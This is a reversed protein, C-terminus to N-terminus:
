AVPYKRKRNTRLRDSRLLNQIRSIRQSVDEDISCDKDDEDEEDSFMMKTKEKSIEDTSNPPQTRSTENGELNFRVRKVKHSINQVTGGSIDTLDKKTSETGSTQFKEGTETSDGEDLDQCTSPPESERQAMASELGISSEDTKLLNTSDNSIERSIGRNIKATSSSEELSSSNSLLTPPPPGDQVDMKLATTLAVTNVSIGPQDKLAEHSVQSSVNRGLSGEDNVENSSATDRVIERDNTKENGIKKDVDIKLQWKAQDHERTNNEEKNETAETIREATDTKKKRLAADMDKCAGEKPRQIKGSKKFLSENINQDILLSFLSDIFDIVINAVSRWQYWLM